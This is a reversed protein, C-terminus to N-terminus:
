WLSIHQNSSFFTYYEWKIQSFYLNCCKWSTSIQIVNRKSEIKTNKFIMKYIKNTTTTMRNDCSTQTHYQDLLLGLLIVKRTMDDSWASTYMSIFREVMFQFNNVKITLCSFVLIRANHYSNYSMLWQEINFTLWIYTPLINTFTM